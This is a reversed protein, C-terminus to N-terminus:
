FFCSDEITPEIPVDASEEKIPAVVEKGPESVVSPVSKTTKSPTEVNDHKKPDADNDENLAVYTIIAAVIVLIINKYCGWQQYDGYEKDDLIKDVRGKSDYIYHQAM